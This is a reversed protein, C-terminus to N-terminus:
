ADLDLAPTNARSVCPLMCDGASIEDPDLYTDRHNSRGGLVRVLCTGCTGEQCDYPIKAGSEIAVDLITREPPVTVSVGSRLLRVQIPGNAEPSEAPLFANTKGGERHFREFHVASSRGAEAAADCCEDIMTRPGCVYVHDGEGLRGVLDAVSQSHVEEALEVSGDTLHLRVRDSFRALTDAFLVPSTGTFYDLSWDEGQRQARALMPLIPTIGIGGAIFRHSRAEGNLRLGSKPGRVHLRAGSQAFSHLYRSGGRGSPDLRVAIKWADSEDPDGCLSYSRFSGDGVRMDIHDGPEWSPLRSDDAPSLSLAVVGPALDERAQVIMDIRPVPSTASAGTPSSGTSLEHPKLILDLPLSM